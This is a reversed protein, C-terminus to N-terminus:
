NVDSLDTQRCLIFHLHSALSSIKCHHLIHLFPRVSTSCLSKLAKAKWPVSIASSTLEIIMELPPVMGLKLLFIPPWGVSFLATQKIDELFKEKYHWHKTPADMWMCFSHYLAFCFQVHYLSIDSSLHVTVVRDSHGAAHCQSTETDTQRHRQLDPHVARQIRSHQVLCHVHHLLAAGDEPVHGEGQVPGREIDHRVILHPSAWTKLGSSDPSVSPHHPSYRPTVPELGRSLSHQGYQCIQSFRISVLWSFFFFNVNVGLCLVLACNKSRFYKNSDLKDPYHLFFHKAKNHVSWMTVTIACLRPILLFIFCNYILSM